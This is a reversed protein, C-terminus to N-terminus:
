RKQASYVAKEKDIFESKLILQASENLKKFADDEDIISKRIIFLGGDIGSIEAKYIKGAKFPEASCAYECLITSSFLNGKYKSSKHKGLAIHAIASTAVACVGDDSLLRYINKFTDLKPNNKDDIFCNIDINELYIFDFRKDPLIDAPIEKTIDFCLDPSIKTDIDISYFDKAPHKICCAKQCNGCGIILNSGKFEAIDRNISIEAPKFFTLNQKDETRGNAM